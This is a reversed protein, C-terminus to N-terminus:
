SWCKPGVGKKCELSYTTNLSKKIIIQKNGQRQYFSIEQIKMNKNKMAIETQCGTTIRCDEPLGFGKMRRLKKQSIEWNM